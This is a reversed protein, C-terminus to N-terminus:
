VKKSVHIFWVGVKINILPITKSKIYKEMDNLTKSKLLLFSFKKLKTNNIDDTSVVHLIQEDTLMGVKLNPAYIFVILDNSKVQNIITSDLYSEFSKSLKDAVIYDKLYKYKNDTSVSQAFDFFNPNSLDSLGLISFDSVKVNNDVPYYKYLCQNGFPMVVLDNDSLDLSTLVTKLHAYGEVRERYLPSTPFYLLYFLNNFVLFSAIFVSLAKSKCLYIGYGVLILLLPLLLLSYRTLLNLKGNFALYVQVLFFLLAILALKFGIVDKRITKVIFISSLVLPLITIGILIPNSCHSTFFGLYDAQPSYISKIIPSFFSQVVYGVHSFTFNPPNTLSVTKVFFGPMFKLIVTFPLTVLFVAAVFLSGKLVKNFYLKDRKFFYFLIVLLEFFVFIFGITYSYILALNCLMLCILDKTRSYKFTRILFLSICSTILVLLSYYRVEQSYYILAGSTAALLAVIYGTNKNQIEKGALYLIPVSITGFVVSLFRLVIDSDGFLGMWFHLIFYYLPMHADNTKLQTLIDFPFQEKAILHSYLEDFWLGEPKDLNIMRLCLALITIVIVISLNFFKSNIISNIVNKIKM